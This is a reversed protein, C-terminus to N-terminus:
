NRNFPGGRSLRCRGARAPRRPQVREGAVARCGHRQDQNGQDQAEQLGVRRTRSVQSPRDQADLALWELWRHRGTAPHREARRGVPERLLLNLKRLAAFEPALDDPPEPEGVIRLQQIWRPRLADVAIEDRGRPADGARESRDERRPRPRPRGIPGRAGRGVLRLGDLCDSRIQGDRRIPCRIAERDRERGSRRVQRREDGVRHGFLEDCLREVLAARHQAVPQRGGCPDDRGDIVLDRRIARAEGLARGVAARAPSRELFPETPVLLAPVFQAHLPLCERDQLRAHRGGGPDDFPRLHRRLRYAGSGPRLRSTASSTPTASANPAANPRSYRSSVIWVGSSM